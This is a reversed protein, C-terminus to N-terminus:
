LHLPAPTKQWQNIRKSNCDITHRLKRNSIRGLSEPMMIDLYSKSMRGLFLPNNTFQKNIIVLFGLYIPELSVGSAM